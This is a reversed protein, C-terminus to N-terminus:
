PMVIFMPPHQLIFPLIFTDTQSLEFVLRDEEEARGCRADGRLDVTQDKKLKQQRQHDAHQRPRAQMAKRAHLLGEPFFWSLNGDGHFQRGYKQLRNIAPGRRYPGRLWHSTKPQRGLLNRRSEGPEQLLGGLRQGWSFATSADSLTTPGTFGLFSRILPYQSPSPDKQEHQTLWYIYIICWEIQTHIILPLGRLKAWFHIRPNFVDFFSSFPM